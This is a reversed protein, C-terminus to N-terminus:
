EIQSGKGGQQAGGVKEAKGEPRGETPQPFRARRSRPREFPGFLTGQEEPHRALRGLDEPSAPVLNGLSLAGM